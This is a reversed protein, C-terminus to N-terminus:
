LVGKAWFLLESEFAEQVPMLAAMGKGDFALIRDAFLKACAVNHTSVLVASNKSCVLKKLFDFLFLTNPIDLFATPEDLLIVKVEQALARAIFVRSREGDSLAYMERNSFSSLNTDQIAKEIAIYDTDTRADLFGSYPTRGLSIFEKVTMQPAIPQGIFVSTLKQAREKLSLKCLPKGLLAISGSLPTVFGAVTKLLTSKGAGNPGLLCILENAKFEFNLPPTLKLGYGVVLESAKLLPELVM